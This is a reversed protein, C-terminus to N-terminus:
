YFDQFQFEGEDVSPTVAPGPAPAPLHLLPSGSFLPYLEFRYNCRLGLIREGQRGSFFKMQVNLIQDLYARCDDPSLNPTCQALAYINPNSKDFDEVGTGFRSSSNVTYDVFANLLVGVAADFAVAPSTM